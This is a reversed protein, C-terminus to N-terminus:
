CPGHVTGTPIRGRPAPRAWLSREPFWLLAGGARRTSLRRRNPGRRGCSGIALVSHLILSFVWLLWPNSVGRDLPFRSVRMDARAYLRRGVQPRVCFRQLYRHFALDVPAVILPFAPFACSLASLSCRRYRRSRLSTGYFSASFWM